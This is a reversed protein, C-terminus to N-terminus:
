KSGPMDSCAANATSVAKFGFYIPLISPCLGAYSGLFAFLREGLRAPPQDKGQHAM